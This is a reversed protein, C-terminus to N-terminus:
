KSAWPMKSKAEGGSPSAPVAKDEALFRSIKSEMEGSYSSLKQVVRIGLPKEHLDESRKPALVGTARCLDALQSNGIDVVKQKPHERMIMTYITRGKMPGDIIELKLNLYSGNGAKTERLESEIVWARYTGEPIQEYSSPEHEDANFGNLDAM